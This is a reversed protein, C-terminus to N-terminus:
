SFMKKRYLLLLALIVVALGVGLFVLLDFAPNQVISNGTLNPLCLFGAVLIAAFLFVLFSTEFNVLKRRRRSKTDTVM